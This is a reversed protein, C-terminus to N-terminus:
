TEIPINELVRCIEPVRNTIETSVREIFERTSGEPFDVFVSPGTHRADGKVAVADPGFGTAICEYQDVVTQVHELIEENSRKEM